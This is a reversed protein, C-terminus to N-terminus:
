AQGLYEELCQNKDLMTLSHETGVYRVHWCEAIIGTIDEKDEQYRIIFGYDWCNKTLWIQQKTGKFTTGAVTIDFALGTHHESAGPDAVTLKTASTARSKSMGESQYEAVQQDFLTQQYKFSRYGASVQWDSIGEGIAAEFMTQLAAVATRDGEIANGKINAASSPIVNKLTVLDEPMYDKDVTNKSNVLIPLESPDFAKPESAKKADAAYLAALTMQAAIGDVDLGNQRQFLRVSEQTGGGFDGDVAGSYYGLEKLRAQMLSVTENKDGKSLSSPTIDPTPTPVFTQALDSYLVNLTNEGAVGDSELEHQEQFAKVSEATGTGYAGDVEGSYYGLDKLRQQAKKVGDGKIGIKLLVATPAPTNYPDITVSMMSQVNATPTPTASRETQLTNYDSITRPALVAVVIVLAVILAIM